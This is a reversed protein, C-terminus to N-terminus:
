DHVSERPTRRVKRDSVKRDSVKRDSVKRDPDPSQPGPAAPTLRLAIEGAIAGPSKGEGNVTLTALERYAGGRRAHLAANTERPNEVDLFAPWEGSEMAEGRIREWATDASVELYVMAVDGGALRGLLEMAGPNDVLGGGTAVVRVTAGGRTQGSGPAAGALLGALAQAEARRFVEPGERFLTRPSKGTQEEVLRDLDAFEAGLLEALSLGVTTKGSHKPGTILIIKPGSHDKM